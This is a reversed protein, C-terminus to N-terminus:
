ASQGGEVQGRDGIPGQPAIWLSVHAPRMTEEVTAVVHETLEALDTQARLTAAFAALTKAADYKRRYFRRDITAQIRRRLPQFLAAILLTSVVIILPNNGAQAGALHQMGVVSGFYIAALLATLSGYVLTRSILADIDYLRSRLIAIAIAIPIVLFLCYVFGDAFLQLIPNDHAATPVIFNGFLLFVLFGSLALSFGYVVWKTQERQRPASVRRYRYVQAIIVSAIVVAFIPGNVIPQAIQDLMSGRFLGAIWALSWVGAPLVTWRPVFRGDPFVYFFVLFAIQGLADAAYVPLWLAPHFDPLAQMSGTFAAGGFTVLMLAAFLAMRDDSRRLFLLVGMGVYVLMAIIIIATEYSAWFRLSIGMAHLARAQAVTPPGNDPACQSCVIGMKTYTAPIGALDLAIVATTVLLWAARALRLPMGRLRMDQEATAPVMASRVAARVQTPKM